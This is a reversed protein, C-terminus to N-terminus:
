DGPAVDFVRRDEIAKDFERPSRTGPKHNGGGGSSVFGFVPIDRDIVLLAHHSGPHLAAQVIHGHQMGMIGLNGIGLFEDPIQALGVRDPKFFSHQSCSYTSTRKFFNDRCHVAVPYM